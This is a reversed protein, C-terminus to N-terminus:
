NKENAKRVAEFHQEIRVVVLRCSEKADPHGAHSGCDRLTQEASRLRETNEDFILRIIKQIRVLKKIDSPASSIAKCLLVVYKEMHPTVRHDLGKLEEM